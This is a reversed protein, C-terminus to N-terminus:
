FGNLSAGTNYVFVKLKLKMAQNIMDETGPSKGDWVAILAEANEAMQRNRIPGAAMGYKTWNAPYPHVPLNMYHAFEEGLTDVGPACGSVVSTIEFGSDEIAGLVDDLSIDSKSSGAIITKM